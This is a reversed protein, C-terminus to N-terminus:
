YQAASAITVTFVLNSLSQASTDTITITLVGSQSGDVVLIDDLAVGTVAVTYNLTNANTVTVAGLKAPVTGTNKVVFNVVQVFNPYANGVAVDFSHSGGAITPGILTAVSHPDATATASSFIINYTGTSVQGNITLTQSWAAYGVGLTGLVLILAIILFGIKKM